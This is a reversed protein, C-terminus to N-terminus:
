RRRRSAASGRLLRVHYETCIRNTEQVIARVEDMYDFEGAHLMCDDWACSYKFFYPYYADFPPTASESVLAVLRSAHLALRVLPVPRDDVLRGM